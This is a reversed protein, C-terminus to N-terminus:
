LEKFSNVIQEMYPKHEEMKDKLTWILVQYYDKAGEIITYHYFVDLGSIKGNIGIQRANLNNIKLEKWETSEYTYLSEIILDYVFESYGAFDPLYYDLYEENEEIAENFEEISEDIVIIYFEKTLNQYQLSANDNLGSTKTLFDPLDLSYRSEIEVKQTKDSPQGCSILFFIAVIFFYLNKM